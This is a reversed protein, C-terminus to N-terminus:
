VKYRWFYWFASLALMQLIFSVLIMVNETIICIEYLFQQQLLQKTFYVDVHWGCM